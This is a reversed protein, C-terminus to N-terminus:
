RCASVWARDQCQSDRDLKANIAWAPKRKSRPCVRVCLSVSGVSRSSAHTFLRHCSHIYRCHRFKVGRFQWDILATFLVRSIKAAM